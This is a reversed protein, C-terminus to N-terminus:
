SARGRHWALLGLVVLVVLAAVPPASHALGHSAEPVPAHLGHAMASAPALAALTTIIRTM